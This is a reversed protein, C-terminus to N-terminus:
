SGPMWREPQIPTPGGDGEDPMKWRIAMTMARCAVAQDDTKAPFYSIGGKRKAIIPDFLIPPTAVIARPKLPRGGADLDFELTTRGTLEALTGEPPYDDATIDNGRLRPLTPQLACLDRPLGTERVRADVPGDPASRAASVRAVRLATIRRDDSPLTKLGRAILEARMTDIQAPDAGEVSGTLNAYAIPFEVAAVFARFGDRMIKASAERSPANVARAFVALFHHDPPLFGGTDGAAALVRGLRGDLEILRAPPIDGATMLRAQTLQILRLLPGFLIPNDSGFRASLDDVSRSAANLQEETTGIASLRPFLGRSAMFVAAPDRELTRSLTDSAVSARCRLRSLTAASNLSSSDLVQHANVGALFHRVISPRSAAIASIRTGGGESDRHLAVTLQDEPTVAEGCAPLMAGLKNSIASVDPEARAASAMMAIAATRNGAREEIMAMMAAARAPASAALPADIARAWAHRVKAAADPANTLLATRADLLAWDSESDSDANRLTTAGVLAKAAASPDLILLADIMMRTARARQRPESTIRLAAEVLPIAVEGQGLMLLAHARDLDLAMREEDKLAPDAAAELWPLAAQPQGAILLFRGIRHSLYGDPKPKGDGPVRAAILVDLYESAHILDRAELAMEFAREQAATQASVPLTGAATLALVAALMIRM